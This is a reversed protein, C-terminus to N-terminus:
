FEFLTMLRRGPERLTENYVQVADAFDEIHSIIPWVIVKQSALADIVIQQIARDGYEWGGQRCDIRRVTTEAANTEEQVTKHAGIRRAIRLREQNSDIATVHVAGSLLAFQLAMIGAADMSKIVAHDGFRIGAAHVCGLARIGVGTFVSFEMRLWDLKFAQSAAIDNVSAHTMPGHVRDGVAFGRVDSGTEIVEGVGWAMPEYRACSGALNLDRAQDAGTFRTRIRLANSALPGTSGTEIEAAANQIVLRQVDM